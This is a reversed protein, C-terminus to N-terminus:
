GGGEGKVRLATDYLANRSAGTIEAALRVAGKVPLEELLLRLVREGEGADPAPPAAHLLLAFEGRTRGPTGQLWAGLDACALAAVEEHQKTLERGVTVRREGLAALAAALAEIRHPAELMLVPRPERALAEVAAQREMAKAPLFGQFVFAPQDAGAGGVSLLATVSSAGPLPVVAHGAERVAAVLRAGPDSVGPTGADSAYAVRQGRALRAAVAQAGEAENHQHVSLWAGPPKDIGYARLLAQTHRTDECAVADAIQLVHLARLTIDALNGIPTAVVYLAGQPYHQAEAAERAAALASSFHASLLTAGRFRGAIGGLRACERVQQFVAELQDRAIIPRGPAPAPFDVEDHAFAVARQHEHFHALARAAGKAARRRAHQPRLLAADDKRSAVVQHSERM